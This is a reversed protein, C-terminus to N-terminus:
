HGLYAKLNKVLLQLEDLTADQKIANAKHSIVWVNNKVYGLEPKKRDLTPSNRCHVGKGRKIPIGLLPCRDPIVIDSPDINFPVGHDKARFKARHWMQYNVPQKKDPRAKKYERMYRRCRSCKKFRPNDAKRDCFISSCVGPKKLAKRRRVHATSAQRGKLRRVEPDKYPM